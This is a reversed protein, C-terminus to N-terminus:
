RWYTSPKDLRLERIFAKKWGWLTHLNPSVASVSYDQRQPSPRSMKLRPQKTVAIKELVPESVHRKRPVTPSIAVPESLSPGKLPASLNNSEIKPADNWFTVRLREYTDLM